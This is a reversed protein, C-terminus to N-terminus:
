FWSSKHGKLGRGDKRHQRRDAAVRGELRALEADDLDRGFEQGAPFPGAVQRGPEAINRMGAPPETYVGGQHVLTAVTWSSNDVTWQQDIWSRGTVQYVSYLQRDEWPSMRTEIEVVAYVRDGVKLQKNLAKLDRETRFFTQKAM